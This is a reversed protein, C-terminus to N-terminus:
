YLARWAYNESADKSCVELKDAVGVGGRTFWITGRVAANCTAPKVTATSLRLGGDVELKQSPAVASFNGIGVNGNSSLRMREIRGTGTTGTTELIFATPISTATWTGDAKASLGSSHLYNGGSDASGFLMYGLRDGSVPLTGNSKVHYAIFGAGASVENGEAKFINGPFTGSKIHVGATPVAVGVGIAGTDTVVMKDTTGAADQVAFRTEALATGTLVALAATAALLSIVTKM